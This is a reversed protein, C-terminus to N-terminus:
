LHMKGTVLFTLQEASLIDIDVLLSFWKWFQEEKIQFLKYLFLHLMCCVFIHAM